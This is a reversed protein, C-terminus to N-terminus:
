LTLYYLIFFTLCTPLFRNGLSPILYCTTIVFNIIGYEVGKRTILANNQEYNSLKRVCPVKYVISRWFCLKKWEIIGVCPAKVQRQTLLFSEGWCLATRLWNITSPPDFYIYFGYNAWKNMERNNKTGNYCQKKSAIMIEEYFHVSLFILM